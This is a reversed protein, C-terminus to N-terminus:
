RKREENHKWRYWNRSGPSPMQPEPEPRSPWKGKHDRRYTMFAWGPKWGLARAIWLLEAYETRPDATLAPQRARKGNPNESRELTGPVVHM